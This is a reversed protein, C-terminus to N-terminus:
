ALEFASDVSCHRDHYECIDSVGSAVVHVAGLAKVFRCAAFNRATSEYEEIWLRRAPMRDAAIPWVGPRPRLREIGIRWPKATLRARFCQQKQCMLRFIRDVKLEEFAMAVEDSRPDFTKHMALIRYGLPTEYVRLHWDPHNEAFDDVRKLAREKLSGRLRRLLRTAVELFVFISVASAFLWIFTIAWRGSSFYALAAPLLSLGILASFDREEVDVDAFFVNPSNLCRAGYSNRTVVSDGLREVIEERIPHGDSGNYGVKQERRPLDVGSVIQDFAEKVRMEAHQQAAEQGEDSWGFRRVTIQREPFRKQIRAEAWYEPVIM